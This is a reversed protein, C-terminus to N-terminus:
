IATSIVMICHNKPLVKMELWCCKVAHRKWLDKRSVVKQKLLMEEALCSQWNGIRTLVSHEAMVCTFLTIAQLPAENLYHLTLVQV